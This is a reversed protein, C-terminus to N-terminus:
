GKPDQRTAQRRTPRAGSQTRNGRGGGGAGGAAHPEPLEGAPRARVGRASAAGGDGRSDDFLVAARFRGRLRGAGATSGGGRRGVMVDAREGSAVPWPAYGM